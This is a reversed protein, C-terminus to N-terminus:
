KDQQTHKNHNTDKYWYTNFKLIWQLQILYSFLNHPFVYTLMSLWIFYKPMVYYIDLLSM